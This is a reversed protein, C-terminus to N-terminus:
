FDEFDNKEFWKIWINAYKEIEDFNEKIEDDFGPVYFALDNEDEEDGNYQMMKDTGELNWAVSILGCVKLFDDKTKGTFIVDSWKGDKADIGTKGYVKEIGKLLTEANSSSDVNIEFDEYPNRLKSDKNLVLKENIYQNLTKM